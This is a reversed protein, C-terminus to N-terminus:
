VMRSLRKENQSMVCCSRGGLLRWWVGPCLCPSWRWAGGPLRVKFEASDSAWEQQLRDLEAGLRGVEEGAEDREAEVEAAAHRLDAMEAAMADEM